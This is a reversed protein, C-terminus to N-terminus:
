GNLVWNFKIPSNLSFYMCSNKYPFRHIARCELKIKVPPNTSASDKDKKLNILSGRLLVVFVEFEPNFLATKLLSALACLVGRAGCMKTLMNVINYRKGADHPM